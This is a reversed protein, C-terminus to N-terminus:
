LGVAKGSPWVPERTYRPLLVAPLDGRGGAGPGWWGGAVVAGGGGGVDAWGSGPLGRLTSM